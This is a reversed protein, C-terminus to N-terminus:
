QLSHPRSFKILIRPVLKESTKCLPFSSVSYSPLLVIKISCVECKIKVLIGIAIPLFDVATIQRRLEYNCIM